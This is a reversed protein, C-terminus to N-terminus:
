QPPGFDPKLTVESDQIITIQKIWGAHKRDNVVIRHLGAKLRLTAPVEGVFRGDVTIEAGDPENIKATGFADATTNPGGASETQSAPASLRKAVPISSPYFKQLVEILDSASLAFGIGNVGQKILKLTNIGVVEGHANLLPGGSNGPNIPTDTQIWTGPGADPFAGVGSVIGKTVSFKMADGPNGIAIVSEGQKVTASDALTLHPFDKGDVKALAIDLEDDVYVVKAELEDGQPLATQLSEEGRAVHANTAIVGTDTVFFGTGSKDLGKLFVVAPKTRRVLEELPLEPQLDAEGNPLRASVDGTFVLKVPKLAVEFHDSKLLWYEGHNRGNLSIWNLPGETMKIEKSVYGDLTVRAVMPHELRASFATKPRRFYGAPFDKEFPTTGETTGDIEVKAGSPTSTIRLTDAASRAPWVCVFLFAVARLLLRSAM